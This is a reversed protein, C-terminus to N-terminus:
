TFGIGAHFCHRTPLGGGPAAVGADASRQGYGRGGGRGVGKRVHLVCWCRLAGRVAWGGVSGWAVRGYARMCRACRCQRRARREGVGSPPNARVRMRDPVM